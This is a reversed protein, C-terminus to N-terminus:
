VMDDKEVVTLLLMSPGAYVALAGFYTSPILALIIPKHIGLTGLSM